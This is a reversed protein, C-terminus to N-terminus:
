EDSDALLPNLGAMVEDFDPIGDSDTDAIFPDTGYHVVEEGNTLGDGDADGASGLTHNTAITYKLRFFAKESPTFGWIITDGAGVEVVPATLWGQLDTSVQIVYLRGSVGHWRVQHTFNANTSPEFVVESQDM